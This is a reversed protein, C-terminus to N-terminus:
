KIKAQAQDRWSLIDPAQPNLILVTSWADAARRYDQNVWYRYWAQGLLRTEAWTLGGVAEAAAEVQGAAVLADGYSLRTVDDRRGAQWLHEADVLAAAYAGVSMYIQVRRQLAPRNDADLALAREFNALAPQLRGGPGAGLDRRAADLTYRDFKQPDYQTLELRTQQVAGLNAYGAAFLPRWFIVIALALLGAGGLIAVNRRSGNPQGAAQRAPRAAAQNLFWAYGFLLGVIPLTRTVYFVVDVMGHLGAGVLAALGAWGWGSVQEQSLAKWAWAAVGIGAWLLGVFGLIGQEVWIELFTNHAHAIFPVNILLGYVSHVMWFSMLGSGTFPYDRILQWGQRWLHTRNQIGGTPDPIQGVLRDFNGSAIVVTAALIALLAIASWYALQLRPRVAQNHKSLWRRQLWALGALLSMGALALWAGRSSTLFLGGLIIVTLSAALIGPWKQRRRWADWAWAVGFPISVLLTGAAVNAHIAPGPIYLGLQNILIGLRTILALKGPEVSFNHQIPWYVALGAAAIVFGSALWRRGNAGTAVVSYYLVGAALLRAFQLVAASRDYAIWVAFAGSVLILAWPIELGTRPLLQRTRVARIAFSGLLAVLGAGVMSTYAETLTFAALAALLFGWELGGLWADRDPHM